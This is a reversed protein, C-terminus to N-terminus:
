PVKITELYIQPVNVEVRQPSKLRQKIKIQENQDRKSFTNYVVSKNQKRERAKLVHKKLRPLWFEMQFTKKGM